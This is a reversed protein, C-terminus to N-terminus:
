GYDVELTIGGAIDPAALLLSGAAMATALTNLLPRPPMFDVPVRYGLTLMRDHRRTFYATASRGEPPLWPLPSGAQLSERHFGLDVLNHRAFQWRSDASLQACLIFGRHSAEHLLQVPIAPHNRLFTQCAAFVVAPYGSRSVVATKHLLPVRNRILMDAIDDREVILIREPAYYSEGTDTEARTSFAKGDALQGIPHTQIYKEVAKKASNFDISQKLRRKFQFGLLAVVFLLIFLGAQLSWETIFWALVAVLVIIAGCGLPGLTSKNWYRCIELALQTATFCYHGQDSLRDIMQRMAFDSIKDDKKRFVFRYGCQGCHKGDKYKQNHNCDPCRM